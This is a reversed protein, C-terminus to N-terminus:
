LCPQHTEKRQSLEAKLNVDFLKYFAELPENARPLEQGGHSYLAISVSKFLVVRAVRVRQRTRTRRRVRQGQVSM